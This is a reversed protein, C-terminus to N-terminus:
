SLHMTMATKMQGRHKRRLAAAKRREHRNMELDRTHPNLGVVHYHGYNDNECNCLEIEYVVGAEFQGSDARVELPTATM